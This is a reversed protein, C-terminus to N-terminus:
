RPLAQLLDGVLVVLSPGVTRDGLAARTALRPLDGTPTSARHRLIAVAAVVDSAAPSDVTPQRMGDALVQTEVAQLLRLVDLADKDVIRSTQGRAADQLRDEIKILKAVLLAAPGAVRLTRRRQDDHALATIQRPANDLLALALGAGIRATTHQHGQLHAARASRQPRNSQHPAVMLDIAVDGPGSWHGPQGAIFGAAHMAAAIDPEDQLTATDLALDADTTMVPVNLSGAGTHVYVAQAGILILSQRHGALADLADLLVRRAAIYEPAVPPQMM